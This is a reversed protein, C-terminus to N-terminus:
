SRLAFYPSLPTSTGTFGAIIASHPVAAPLGNSGATYRGLFNMPSLSTNNGWQDTGPLVYGVPTSLTVEGYLQYNMSLTNAASFNLGLVYAGPTLATASSNFGSLAFYRVSNVSATSANSFINQLSGLMNVSTENAYSYLAAQVTFANSGNSVSRSMQLFLSRVTLNGPVIFPVFFPRTNMSGVHTILGWGGPFVHEYYQLNPAAGGGPAAATITSGNLGFSVGGANDFSFASLLNNAVGATIRINSLTAANSQMATTLFAPINLSLGSSNVTWAVGNATLATNLGIADNSARATTLHASLNLSLGSSNGTMLGNTIATNLGIGDTSRRATTLFAPINLSLGSSNVTWSVGNATLATNLGVADNSARATTLFAPFNFSLGSSNGTMSVGNATIATNLGIADNSARYSTNVSGSITSGDLHFSVGNADAFSFNSINTNTTGASLRIATLGGGGEDASIQIAGADYGIKIIGLGQFSLRSANLTTQSNITTNGTAFLSLNQNSQTTLFNSLNLSLGSSNATIGAGNTTFATNLGIGDTSRRATTLFAPFNFSLGSSNASMSVGNNTIATNLGIADNSARATTLFQTIIPVTYSGVVSGNTTYFHMGNLSGLSLTSFQFSGNYGSVAVSQPSGGSGRTYSGYIGQTGISFSLGNSNAFKLTSVASSGNAASVTIGSVAEGQENYVVWGDLQTYAVFEGPQLTGSWLSTRNSGQVIQISLTTDVSDTNNIRLYALTRIVGGAAPVVSVLNQGRSNGSHSGSKITSDDYRSHFALETTTAASSLSFKISQTGTIRIM